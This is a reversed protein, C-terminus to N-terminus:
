RKLHRRAPSLPCSLVCNVFSGGEQSLFVNDGVGLNDQSIYRVKPPIQSQGEAMPTTVKDTSVGNNILPTDGPPFTGIGGGQNHNHPIPAPHWQLFTADAETKPLLGAHNHPFPAQPMIHIGQSYMLWALHVQAMDRVNGGATFFSPQWTIPGLTSATWPFNTSEGSNGHVANLPPIHPQQTGTGNVRQPPPLPSYMGAPVPQLEIRDFSMDAPPRSRQDHVADLLTALHASKATPTFPTYNAEGRVQRELPLTASLIHVIPDPREVVTERDSAPHPELARFLWRLKDETSQGIGEPRIGIKQSTYPPLLHRIPNDVSSSRRAITSSAVLARLRVLHVQNSSYDIM